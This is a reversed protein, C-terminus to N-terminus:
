QFYSDAQIHSLAGGTNLSTAQVLYTKNVFQSFENAIVGNIEADQALLIVQQKLSTWHRLLNARRESDLRALPTDIVCPMQYDTAEAMAYILSMILVQTQGAANDVVTKNGDKGYLEIAGSEDIKIKAIRDEGFITRNIDTALQSIESVKIKLLEDTLEDIVKRVLESRNAKQQRPNNDSIEQLKKDLEDQLANREKQAHHLENQRIGILASSEEKEKSVTKLREILEGKGTDELEDITHIIKEYDAKVQENKEILDGLEQNTANNALSQYESKIYSHATQSLYNHRITNACGEPLPYYLDDWCERVAQKLLDQGLIVDALAGLATKTKENHSFNDWFEDVRGEIAGKGKEHELRIEESKLTNILELISARPLLAQPLNEFSQYIKAMLEQDEQYLAERKVTLDKITILSDAGATGLTALLREHEENLTRHKDQIDNFRQTIIGIKTNLKGLEDELREIERQANANSGARIHQTRYTDLSTRLKGLLTVGLLGRLATQLWVGAGASEARAVIKEGDFFFFPAYELPMANETLYDDAEDDSLLESLGGEQVITVRREEDTFKREKDFYWKRLIRVGQKKGDQNRWFIEIGIESQYGVREGSANHYLAKSLYGKYDVREDLGARGLHTFADKGYLGLYIAELLTTKGHANKAGIIVLNKGDKPEPLEFKANEYSKFNKLSIAGIWM